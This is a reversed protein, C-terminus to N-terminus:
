YIKWRSYLSRIEDWRRGTYGYFVRYGIEVGAAVSATNVQQTGDIVDVLLTKYVSNSAENPCDVAAENLCDVAAQAASLVENSRLDDIKEVGGLIAWQPVVLASFVCLFLAAEM